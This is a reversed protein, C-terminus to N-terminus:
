VLDIFCRPLRERRELLGSPLIRVGQVFLQSRDHLVVDADNPGLVLERGGEVLQRLQALSRAPHADAAVDLEVGAPM